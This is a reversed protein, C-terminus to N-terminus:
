ELRAGSLKVVEAWQGIETHILKAFQQGSVGPFDAGQGSWVAKADPEQCAKRIAEIAANQADGSNSTQAKLMNSSILTVDSQQLGLYSFLREFQALATEDIAKNKVLNTLNMRSQMDTVRGSLFANDTQASADEVQSVNNQASLFTSLRAEELPISWPETLNDTSDNRALSDERLILRSWDLAGVLIWASQIRSREASEVEIARWQQWMASAAFTAVLAVTLMAALLAAGRQRLSSSRHPQHALKTM